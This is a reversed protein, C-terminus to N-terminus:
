RYMSDILLLFIINGSINEQTVCDGDNNSFHNSSDSNWNLYYETTNVKKSFRV